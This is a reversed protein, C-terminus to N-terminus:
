RSLNLFFMQLPLSNILHSEGISDMINTWKYEEMYARAEIYDNGLSFNNMFGQLGSMVDQSHVM